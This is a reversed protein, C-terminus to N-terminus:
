SKGHEERPWQQFWGMWSGQWSEETPLPYILREIKTANSQITSCIHYVAYLEWGLAQTSIFVKCYLIRQTKIHKDIETNDGIKKIFWIFILQIVFKQVYERQQHIVNLHPATYQPYLLYMLICTISTSTGWPGQWLCCWNSSARRAHGRPRYSASPAPWLPQIGPRLQWHWEHCVRNYSQVSHYSQFRICFFFCTEFTNWDSM